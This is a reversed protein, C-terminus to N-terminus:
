AQEPGIETFAFPRLKCGRSYESAATARKPTMRECSGALDLESPRSPEEIALTRDARILIRAGAAISRYVHLNGLRAGVAYGIHEHSKALDDSDSIDRTRM